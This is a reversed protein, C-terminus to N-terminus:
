QENSPTIFGDIVHFFGHKHYFDAAIIKATNGHTDFLVIAGGERKVGIRQGLITKFYATGNGNEVAKELSNSDVRGPIFHYTLYSKWTDSFLAEQDEETLSSFSSNVMVFATVMSGESLPMDKFLPAAKSFHDANEINSFLSKESSFTLGNWEKTIKETKTNTYKQASASISIFLALLLVIKFKM